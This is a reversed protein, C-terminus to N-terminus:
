FRMVCIMYVTNYVNVLIINYLWGMYLCLIYQRVPMCTNHLLLLLLIFIVVLYMSCLVWESDLLTSEALIHGGLRKICTTDEIGHLAVVRGSTSFSPLGQMGFSYLRKHDTALKFITLQLFQLCDAYHYTM